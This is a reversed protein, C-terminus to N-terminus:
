RDSDIKDAEHAFLGGLMARFVKTFLVCRLVLEAEGALGGRKVNDIDGLARKPRCQFGRSLSRVRGLRLRAVVRNEFNGTGEVLKVLGDGTLEGAVSVWRKAM